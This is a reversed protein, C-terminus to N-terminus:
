KKYYNSNLVRKPSLRTQRFNVLLGLHLNLTVLYRKLQFYDEKSIFIKTKFELIIKDEIIFDCVCRVGQSGYQQDVFRHERVYKINNDLLPKEFCDGYQKENRYLDLEQHTKYLLGTIKYSLEKYVVKGEKM